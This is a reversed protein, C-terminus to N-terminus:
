HTEDLFCEHICKFNDHEWITELIPANIGFVQNIDKSQSRFYFKDENKLCIDFSWTMDIPTILGTPDINSNISTNPISLSTWNKFTTNLLLQNHGPAYFPSNPDVQQKVWFPWSKNPKLIIEHYNLIGQLIDKKLNKEKSKIPKFIHEGAKLFNYIGGNQDLLKYLCKKLFTKSKSM